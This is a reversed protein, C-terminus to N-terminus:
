QQARETAAQLLMAAYRLRAAGSIALGNARCWLALAFVDIPVRQVARYRRRLVQEICREVYTTYIAHNKPLLQRDAAIHILKRYEAESFVPGAFPTM